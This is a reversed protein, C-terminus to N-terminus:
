GQVTQGQDRLHGLVDTDLCAFTCLAVYLAAACCSQLPPCSLCNSLAVSPHDRTCTVVCSQPLECRREEPQESVEVELELLLAALHAVRLSAENLSATSAQLAAQLGKGMLRPWEAPSARYEQPSCYM